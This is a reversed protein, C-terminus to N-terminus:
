FGVNRDKIYFGAERLVPGIATSLYPTIDMDVRGGGELDWVLKFPLISEIYVSRKLTRESTLKHVYVFAGQEIKENSLKEVVRLRTANPTLDKAYKVEVIALPEETTTIPMRYSSKCPEGSWIHEVNYIEYRDGVQIGANAGAPVILQDQNGISVVITNWPAEINKLDKLTKQVSNKLADSMVKFFPTSTYTSGGLKIKNLDIELGMRKEDKKADGTAQGLPDMPKLYEAMSTSVTLTSRKIRFQADFAKFWEFGPIVSFGFRVENISTVEFEVVQTEFRYDIEPVECAARLKQFPVGDNVGELSAASFNQQACGSQLLILGSLVFSLNKM